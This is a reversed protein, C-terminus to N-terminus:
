SNGASRTGQPRYHAGIQWGAWAAAVLAIAAVLVAIASSPPQVDAGGAIVAVALAVVAANRLLLLRYDKVSSGGFCGCGIKNSRQKLRARVITVSFILMLVITSMAGLGPQWLFSAAVALEVWPLVLFGVIRLPRPLHYGLLQRRWAHNRVIKAAAAWSLTLALALLGLSQALSLM